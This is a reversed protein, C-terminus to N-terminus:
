DIIKDWTSTASNWLWTDGTDKRYYIGCNGTPPETPDATGCTVGGGGSAVAQTLCALLEAMTQTLQGPTMAAACCQELRDLAPCDSMPDLLTIAEALGNVANVLSQFPTLYGDCGAFNLM